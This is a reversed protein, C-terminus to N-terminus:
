SSSILIPVLVIGIFSVLLCLLELSSVGVANPTTSVVAFTTIITEEAISFTEIVLIVITEEVVEWFLLMIRAHKGVVSDIVVVPSSTIREIEARSVELWLQM